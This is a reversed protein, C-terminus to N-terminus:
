LSMHQQNYTFEMGPKWKLGYLQFIFLGHTPGLSSFLQIVLHSGNLFKGHLVLIVVVFYGIM